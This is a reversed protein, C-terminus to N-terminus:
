YRVRRRAIVRRINGAMNPPEASAEPAALPVVAAETIMQRVTAAMQQPPEVRATRPPELGLQDELARWKAESWRDAGALWVAARAYVRCDLAENRARLQRWETKVSFGTRSRVIVQQESVMQKITEDGTGTSLHVYGSPYRLGAAIQEDTPKALNLHRYFERKFFATSVTWLNLGRKLREGNPLVEVRTPGNVPVLRDNSALGKVPLVMSRDQSRAWNYVSATYAGTDIAFRQLGMRRGSEHEWTRGILESVALWTAAAGPDGYIIVTEVLWSELNRGFAWIAAEVRDGQVDAGAVLFLGREPVVAHPWTERRDYLRQWDPIADAEESWSQGLVTNTFAKRADADEAAAEWKRAIDAWGLWGLPSYL